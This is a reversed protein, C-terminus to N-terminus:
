WITDLPVVWIERTENILHVDIFEELKLAISFPIM